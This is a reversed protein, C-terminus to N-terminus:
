RRELQPASRHCLAVCTGCGICKEQQVCSVWGPLMIIAHVSCATICAGCGVCKDRDIYAKNIVKYDSMEVGYVSLIAPAFGKM